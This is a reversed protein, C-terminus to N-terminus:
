TKTNDAMVQSDRYIQLMDERRAQAAIHFIITESLEVDPHTACHEAFWFAESIPENSHWTTM